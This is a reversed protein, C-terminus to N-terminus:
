TTTSVVFSLLLSATEVVGSVTTIAAKLSCM